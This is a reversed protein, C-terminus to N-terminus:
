KVVKKSPSSSEGEGKESIKPKFREVISAIFDPAFWGVVITVVFDPFGYSERMLTYVFGAIIALVIHRLARRPVYEEWFFIYALAGIVGFFMGLLYFQIEM